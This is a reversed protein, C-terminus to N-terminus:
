RHWPSRARAIAVRIEDAQSSAPLAVRFDSLKTRALVDDIIGRAVAGRIGHDELM